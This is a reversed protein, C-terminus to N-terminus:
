KIEEIRDADISFVYNCEPCVVLRLRGKEDTRFEDTFIKIM